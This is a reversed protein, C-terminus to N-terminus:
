EGEGPIFIDFYVYTYFEDLKAQITSLRELLNDLDIEVTGRRLVYFHNQYSKDFPYRSFDLKDKSSTAELKQYLEEIYSELNRSVKKFHQALEPDFERIKPLLTEYIQKINHGGEIRKGNKLLANFMWTLGKLYLEISHNANNLIPFILIDARKDNNKELCSSILETSSLFYGEAINILNDFESYNEIRWNLFSMRDIDNNRSFIPKM